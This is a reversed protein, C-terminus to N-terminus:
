SEIRTNWKQQSHHVCFFQMLYQIWASRLVYICICVVCVFKQLPILLLAKQKSLLLSLQLIKKVVSFTRAISTQKQTQSDARM